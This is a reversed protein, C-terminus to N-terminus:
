NKLYKHYLFDVEIDVNEKQMGKLTRINHQLMEKVINDVRKQTQRKFLKNFLSKVDLSMQRYCYNSFGRMDNSTMVTKVSTVQGGSIVDTHKKVVRSTFEVEFRFLIGISQNNISLLYLPEQRNVKSLLRANIMAEITDFGKSLMLKYAEDVSWCQTDQEVKIRVNEVNESSPQICKSVAEIRERKIKEEERKKKRESQIEFARAIAEDELNKATEHNLSESGVDNKSNTENNEYKDEQYKQNHSQNNEGDNKVTEPDKEDKSLLVAGKQREIEIEDLDRELMDSWEQERQHLVEADFEQQM